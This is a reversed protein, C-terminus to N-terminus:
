QRVKEPDTAAWGAFLTSLVDTADAHRTIDEKAPAVEKVPLREVGYPCHYHM